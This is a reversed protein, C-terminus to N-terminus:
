IILKRSIRSYIHRHHNSLKQYRYHHYHQRTCHGHSEDISEDTLFLMQKRYAYAIHSPGM